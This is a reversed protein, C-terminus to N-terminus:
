RHTVVWQGSSSPPQTTVGTTGAAVPTEGTPEPPLDTVIRSVLTM